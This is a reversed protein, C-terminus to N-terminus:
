AETADHRLAGAWVQAWDTWAKQLASPDFMGLGQAADVLPQASPPPSGPAIWSQMLNAMEREASRWWATQADLLRMMWHGYALSGAAWQRSFSSWDVPFSAPSPTRVPTPM